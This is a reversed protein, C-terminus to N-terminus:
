YGTGVRHTGIHHVKPADSKKGWFACKYGAPWLRFGFHGECEPPAPWGLELIRRPYVCPNTTFFRQHEFWHFGNWSTETYSESFQEVFGGFAVERGLAQRRLAMQALHPHAGLVAIVHALEVPENFLFDDELHVIYDTDSPVNAWGSQVAGCFGRRQEHHVREYGPFTADLWAAYRRDASDNIVIRSQITGVLRAEASAVTKKLCEKRGDTFILLAINM